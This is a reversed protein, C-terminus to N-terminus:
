MVRSCLLRRDANTLPGKTGGAGTAGTARVAREKWRWLWSTSRACPKSLGARGVRVGGARKAPQRRARKACEKGGDVEESSTGAAALGPRRGRPDHWRGATRTWHAYSGQQTGGPHGHSPRREGTWRQPPREPAPSWGLRPRCCGRWRTPRRRWRHSCQGPRRRQRAQTRRAPGQQRGSRRGSQGCQAGPGGRGCTSQPRAATRQPPRLCPTQPPAGDPPGRLTHGAEGGRGEVRGRGRWGRSHWPKGGHRQRAHTTAQATPALQTKYKGQGGGGGGSLRATQGQSRQSEGLANRAVHSPEPQTLTHSAHIGQM